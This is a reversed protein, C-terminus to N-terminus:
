GGKGGMRAGGYVNFARSQSCGSADTLVFIIIRGNLIEVGVDQIHELKMESGNRILTSELKNYILKPETGTQLSKSAEDESLVLEEGRANFEEVTKELLLWVAGIEERRETEKEARALGSVLSFVISALIAFFIGSVAMAVLLETITFGKRKKFNGAEDYFFVVFGPSGM